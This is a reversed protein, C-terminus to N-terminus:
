EPRIRRLDFKKKTSDQDVELRGEIDVKAGRKIDVEGHIEVDANKGFVVDAGEDITLTPERTVVEFLSGCHACRVRDPGADEFDTSGCQTCEYPKIM